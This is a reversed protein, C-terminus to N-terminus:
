RGEKIENDIDVSMYHLIEKESKGYQYCYYTLQEQSISSLPFYSCNSDAVYLGSVSSVPNMAMSETLEVGISTYASLLSFISNKMHHDPVIPYGIAPRISTIKEGKIWLPHVIHTHLYESLSEALRDSLLSLLLAHYEDDHEKYQQVMKPVSHGITAVFMGITDLLTDSVYDALSYYHEDKMPKQSRLFTFNELEKREKDLVSVTHENKKIAPFLGFVAKISANLTNLVDKNGLLSLADHKLTDAETSHIPTLWAKFFMHWNINPILQEVQIDEIIHIVPSSSYLTPKHKIHRKQTAVTFPTLREDREKYREKILAYEDEIQQIFVKKQHSILNMAISVTSSADVSYFTRKPYLPALRLATHVASTTAGGIIIPINMKEEEFLSCVEGMHTLSPTILGSLAVIDANYEIAKELITRSPVMVGLDIVRFNNCRLVLAVINKGIDHVDGKVTAFVVTKAQSAVENKINLRPSLIDVAIKMVRASRVVQPLFLAGSQFLSGVKEMGKMLPGEIIEVAELDDLAKLDERLTSEDGGVIARILRKQPDTEQIEEKSTTTKKKKIEQTKIALEILDQTAKAPNRQTLLLAEKIINYHNQELDRVQIITSPNIIAMDLGYSLGIELFVAHIAERIYSNGRFSFSLNSLGGSVKVNPYKEKIWATAHLFDKAYSASEAMGTAITLINPDFIISTPCTIFNEILLEYSRTAIECKRQFTDAQGHEDFLMVVMAAGMSEIFRAKEKFLEDGDKLSISNVIARGQLEKLACVIVNWNSSDIMIPVKAVEPDALLGRLLIRMEREGDLLADDVCLDIIHAGMLVQKKIISLAQDYHGESILRKFMKSGSVNAREGVILFTDDEEKLPELGSLTFVKEKPIRTPQPMKKILQSLAKIHEYTSGCCGGIIHLLGRELLPSLLSTFLQASQQYNGDIDPLGANPHVSIPFPSITDLEDILPLMEELGTSCNLGLSFLPYSSLSSVLAKLTQGSLTRGSKDSFTASVMVPLVKNRERMEEFVAFLAAKAVLTDFVTEVLILDVNGDLLGKVQVRYMEVFEDFSASRASLDDTSTSFSLAKGTPGLVGAVFAYRSEEEEVLEVAARAIEAAALNMDYVYEVLGYEELSFANAGFTNTEIIDSGSLLYTHHIDFIVDSRTLSLIDICGSAPPISDIQFDSEQLHLSQVTTGMAGDLLLVKQGMLNILYESRTM